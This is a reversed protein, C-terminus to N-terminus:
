YWNCYCGDQKKAYDVITKGVTDNKELVEKEINIAEKKAMFEIENLLDM